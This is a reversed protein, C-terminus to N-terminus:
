RCILMKKSEPLPTTIKVFNEIDQGKAYDISCVVRREGEELRSGMHYCKHTNILFVTSRPGLIPKIQDALGDAVIQEDEIRGPFIGNKVKRSGPIPIYTLPGQATSKVDTLYVWISVMDDGGQAYDLHWQRSARLKKSVVEVSRSEVINIRKLIPVSGYYATVAQLISDQLAFRVLINDTALDNPDDLPFFFPHTAVAKAAESRKTVTEDYYKMLEALLQPDIQDTFYSFGNRRFEEAHQALAPKLDRTFNRASRKREMVEGLNRAKFALRRVHRMPSGYGGLNEALRQVKGHLKGLPYGMRRHLDKALRISQTVMILKSKSNILGVVTAAVLPM